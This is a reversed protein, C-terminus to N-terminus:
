WKTDTAKSRRIPRIQTMGHALMLEKITEDQDIRYVGDSGLDVQM